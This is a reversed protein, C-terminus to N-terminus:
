GGTGPKALQTVTVTVKGSVLGGFGALADPTASNSPFTTGYPADRSVFIGSASTGGTVLSHRDASLYLVTGATPQITVGAAPIGNADLVMGITLGKDPFTPLGIAALVDQLTSKALRIGTLEISPQMAENPVLARCSVSTTTQAVDEFVTICASSSFTTATEGMWAPPDIASRGLTQESMISYEGAKLVPEAVSVTLTDALARSIPVLPNDFDTIVATIAHSNANKCTPDELLGLNTCGLTVVTESDGPHYFARGGVAPNPPCSPPDSQTCPELSTVPYGDASYTQGTPCEYTGDPLLTVQSVPYLAMEVELTQLPVKVDPQPLNIAAISCLDMTRSAPLKQCVKIWPQDPASPSFIRISVFAECLLTVDSCLTATTGTDATCTYGKQQSLVFRLSFPPPDGCATLLVLLLALRRM